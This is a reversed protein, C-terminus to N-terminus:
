SAPGEVRVVAEGFLCQLDALCWAYDVRATVVAATGTFPLRLVPAEAFYDRAPDILTLPLEGTWTIGDTPAPAVTVGPDAVLRAAGRPELTVVLVRGKDGREIWGRVDVGGAPRAPAPGLGDLLADLGEAVAPGAALTLAAGILARRRM